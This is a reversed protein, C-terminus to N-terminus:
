EFDDLGRLPKHSILKKERGIRVAEKLIEVEETKRGLTRELNRIRELAAKFKSLAVVEEEAKIGEISGQEMHKRWMFIMSAAIGRERAVCSVTKGPEASERIIALKEAPSYRRYARRGIVINRDQGISENM